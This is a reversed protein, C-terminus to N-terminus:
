PSWINLTADECKLMLERSCSIPKSFAFSAISANLLQTFTIYVFIYLFKFLLKPIEFVSELTVELELLVHPNVWTWNVGLYFHSLYVSKFENFFVHPITLARGFYPKSIHMAFQSHGTDSPLSIKKVRRTISSTSLLLCIDQYKGIGIINNKTEKTGSVICYFVGCAVVSILFIIMPLVYESSLM